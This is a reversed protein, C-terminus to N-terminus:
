VPMQGINMVLKKKAMRCMAITDYLKKRISNIYNSLNLDVSNNKTYDEIENLGRLAHFLSSKIENDIKSSIIEQKTGAVQGGFDIDNVSQAAWYDQSSPTGYAEKLIKNVSEKVIQQLDSETLRIQKNNM